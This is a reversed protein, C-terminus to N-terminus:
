GYRKREKVTRGTRTIIPPKPAGLTSAMTSTSTRKRKAKRKAKRKEKVPAEKVEPKRKMEVMASTKVPFFSNGSKESQTEDGDEEHGHVDTRSQRTQTALKADEASLHVLIWAANQAEKREKTREIYEM